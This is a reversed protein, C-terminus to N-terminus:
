ITSLNTFGYKAGIANIVANIDTLSMDYLNYPFLALIADAETDTLSGDILKLSNVFGMAESVVHNRAANDAFNVKASNLEHIVAAAIVREAETRIIAAQADKTAYDGAGIAARGKLFANILKNNSGIGANVQNCYSGLYKAGTTVTPFTVPVCFFGFALDWTHQLATGQGSVVTSNDLYLSTNSLHTVIQNYYLTGILTKSVVQGYEIGRGSVLYFKTGTLDTAVGAVGRSAAVTSLSALGLSDMAIEVVSRGQVATFEKMGLSSNNLTPSVFQSNTNAYMSRLKSSSVVTNAVKGKSMEADLETHMAIITTADAYNLPTFNYSTPVAYELTQPDDDNNNCSSFGLISLSLLFIINKKM